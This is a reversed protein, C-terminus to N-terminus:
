YCNTLRIGQEALRELNPTYAVTDGYCGLMPSIDETVLFLFNPQFPKEEVTRGNQCSSTALLSGAFVFWYTNKLKM